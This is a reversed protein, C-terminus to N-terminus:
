RLVDARIIEAREFDSPEPSVGVALDTSEVERAVGAKRGNGGCRRRGGRTGIGNTEPTRGLHLGTM